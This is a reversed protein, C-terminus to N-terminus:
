LLSTSSVKLEKIRVISTGEASGLCVLVVLSDTGWSCGGAPSEVNSIRSLHAKSM